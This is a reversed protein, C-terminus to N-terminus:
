RLLFVHFLNGNGDYFFPLPRKREDLGGFLGKHFYFGKNFVSFSSEDEGFLNDMVSNLNTRLDEVKQKLDKELTVRKETVHKEMIGDDEIYNGDGDHKEAGEIGETEEAKKWKGHFYNVEDYQEKLEIKRDDWEDAVNKKKGDM